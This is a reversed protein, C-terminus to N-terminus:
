CNKTIDKSIRGSLASLLCARPSIIVQNDANLGINVGNKLVTEGFFLAVALARALGSYSNDPNHQPLPTIKSSVISKVVSGISLKIPAVPTIFAM